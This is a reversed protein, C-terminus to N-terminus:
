GVPALLVVRLWSVAACEVFNQTPLNRSNFVRRLAYQLRGTQRYAYFLEFATSRHEHFRINPLHVVSQRIM